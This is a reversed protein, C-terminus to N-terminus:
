YIYNILFAIIKLIQNNYGLGADMLFTSNSGFGGKCVVTCWNQLTMAPPYKNVIQIRSAAPKINVYSALMDTQVNSAASASQPWFLILHNILCLNGGSLIGFAM